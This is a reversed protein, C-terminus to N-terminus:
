TAGFNITANLARYFPTRSVARGEQWWLVSNLSPASFLCPGPTRPHEEVWLTLCCTSGTRSGLGQVRVQPMTVREHQAWWARGGEM